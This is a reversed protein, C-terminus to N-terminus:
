VLKFWILRTKLNKVLDDFWEDEEEQSTFPSNTVPSDSDFSEFMEIKPNLQQQQSYLLHVRDKLKQIEIEYLIKTSTVLKDLYLPNCNMEM